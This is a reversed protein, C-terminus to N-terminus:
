FTFTWILGVTGLLGLGAGVSMLAIDMNKNKKAALWDDSNYQNLNTIENKSRKEYEASSEDYRLNGYILSAVGGALLVASTYRFVNRKIKHPDDILKVSVGELAADRISLIYKFSAKDKVYYVSDAIILNSKGNADFVCPDLRILRTDSKIGYVSYLIKSYKMRTGFANKHIYIGNWDFPNAINSKDTHYNGDFESTFIIPKDKTGESILQGQISFGTFNQFLFEAGQEITVTKGFPVEIDSVIIYKQGNGTIKKPLQGSLTDFQQQEAQIIVNAFVIVFCSLIM